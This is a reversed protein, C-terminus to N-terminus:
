QSDANGIIIVVDYASTDVSVNESVTGVEYSAGNFYDALEKGVGETKAVVKTAEQNVSYDSKETSAYGAQNLKDCWSSALGQVQTSNLVLIKIGYNIESSAAEETTDLLDDRAGPDEMVNEDVTTVPGSKKGSKSDGKTALRLILVGFILILIGLIIVAARLFMGLFISGASQKKAM